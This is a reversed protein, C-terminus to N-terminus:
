NYLKKGRLSSREVVPTRGKILIDLVKQVGEGTKASTFIIPCRVLFPLYNRYHINIQKIMEKDKRPFVDWKNAVIITKKKARKVLRALYQDGRCLSKTVETVFLVADAKKLINLTKKAAIEEVDTRMDLRELLGFTDTLLIPRGPNEQYALFEDHSDMTTQYVDSVLALKKGLMQNFLSSKGVNSRGIMVIRFPDVEQSPLFVSAPEIKLAEVILDLLNGKNRATKASVAIPEGLKFKRFEKMRSLLQATDIKNCVLIKPTNIKKLVTALDRDKAYMSRQGDVLMLVLDAEKLAAKTQRLMAQELMGKFASLIEIKKKRPALSSISDKLSMLDVPGTDVLKFLCNKWKVLGYNKDCTSGPLSSIMAQNSKTLCNFLSSKGINIRGIIVVTKNGENM